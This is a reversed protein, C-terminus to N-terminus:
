YNAGLWGRYKIDQLHSPYFPTSHVEFASTFSSPKKTTHSTSLSHTSRSWCAKFALVKSLEPNKPPPPLPPLSLSPKIEADVTGWRQSQVCFGCSQVYHKWGAVVAAGALLAEEKWVRLAKRERKSDICYNSLQLSMSVNPKVDVSGM